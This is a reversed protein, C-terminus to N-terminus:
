CGGSAGLGRGFRGDFLLRFRQNAVVAGPFSLMTKGARCPSPIGAPWCNPKLNVVGSIDSFDAVAELTPKIKRFSGGSLFYMGDGEHVRVSGARRCRVYRHWRGDTELLSTCIV